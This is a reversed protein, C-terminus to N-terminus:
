VKGRKKIKSFLSLVSNAAMVFFYNGTYYAFKLVVNIRTQTMAFADKFDKNKLIKNNYKIKAFFGLLNQKDFTNQMVVEYKWFAANYFLEIQKQNCKWKTIYDLMKSHINKYIGFMDPYYKTSLRQAEYVMYNYNPKNIIIINTNEVADLYDFNFLLDEGLSLQEDMKLNHKKLIAADYLKCVPGADLWKKHLTMIECRSSKNVHEDYSYCIIQLTKKSAFEMRKFGCWIHGADPHNKRATILDELYTPEVSDDSDVFVIYKGNANDIGLNRTQSPGGNPKDIVSIRPDEIAFKNCLELSCDTSGDNILLLEFDGFSQNQISNVCLELTSTANYVPVVISILSQPM